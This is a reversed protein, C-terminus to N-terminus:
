QHFVNEHKTILQRKDLRETKLNFISDHKASLAAIRGFNSYDSIYMRTTYQSLVISDVFIKSFDAQLQKRDIHQVLDDLYYINKKDWISCALDFAQQYDSTLFIRYDEPINEDNELHTKIERLISPIQIKPDKLPSHTERSNTLMYKDGARIQIGIIPLPAIEQRIGLLSHIKNRLFPTPKLLTTWLEQYSSLLENFYTTKVNPIGNRTPFLNPNQYCYQSIEQNTLFLLNGLPPKVNQLLTKYKEQKDVCIMMKFKKTFRMSSIDHLSYDIYKRIDEKEWLIGFASKTLKAIMHCSIMGVIRDGLGGICGNKPYFIAICNDVM